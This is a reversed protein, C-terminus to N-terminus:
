PAYFLAEELDNDYDLQVRGSAVRDLTAADLANRGRYAADAGLGWTNGAAIFIFDDHRKLIEGTVPNSWHSNSLATNLVLLMNADAGDIEDGLFVGGDRFCEVFPRTKYGDLTYTGTLWTYSAGDTLPSFGLQLGLTDALSLALHTKGSGKPGKLYVSNRVAVNALVLPLAPHHHEPLEVGEPAAVHAYDFENIGLKARVDKPWTRTYSDLVYEGAWQQGANFLARAALAPRMSVEDLPEGVEARRECEARNAQHKRLFETPGMFPGKFAPRKVKPKGSDKLAEDLMESTLKLKKRLQEAELVYSDLQRELEKNRGGSSGGSSGDSGQEMVLQVAPKSVDLLTRLSENAVDLPQMGGGASARRNFTLTRDVNVMPSLMRYAADVNGKHQLLAERAVTQKSPVREAHWRTKVLDIIAGILDPDDLTYVGDKTLEHAAAPYLRRLVKLYDAQKDTM